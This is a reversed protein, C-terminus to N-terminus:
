SVQAAEGERHHGGLRVLLDGSAGGSVAVKVSLLLEAKCGLVRPVQGPVWGKKVHKSRASGGDRLQYPTRAKTLRSSPGPTARLLNEPSILIKKTM